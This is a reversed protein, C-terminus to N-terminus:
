QLVELEKMMAELDEDTFEEDMMTTDDIMFDDEMMLSPDTPMGMFGMTLAELDEETFEKDYAPTAVAETRTPNVKFQVEATGNLETENLTLTAGFGTLLGENVAVYIDGVIVAKDFFEKADSSGESMSLLLDEDIEAKFHYSKLGLIDTTGVYEINKFPLPDNEKYDIEAYGSESLEEPTIFTMKVWSGIYDELFLDALEQTDADSVTIDGIKLFVGDKNSRLELNGKVSEENMVADVDLLASMTGEKTDSSGSLKISGKLSNKEGDVDGKLDAKATLEYVSKTIEQQNLLAATIVDEPSKGAPLGEPACGSAFALLGATLSLLLAKSLIKM